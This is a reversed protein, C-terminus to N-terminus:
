KAFALKVHDIWGRGLFGSIGLYLDITATSALTSASIPLRMERWERSLDIGASLRGIREGDAGWLWAAAWVDGVGAFPVKGTGLIAKADAKGWASIDLGPAQRQKESLPIRSFLWMGETAARKDEKTDFEVSALGHHSTSRTIKPRPMDKFRSLGRYPGKGLEFSTSHSALWAASPFTRWERPPVVPTPWAFQGELWQEDIEPRWPTLSLKRFRKSRVAAAQPSMFAGM